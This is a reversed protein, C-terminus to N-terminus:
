AQTLCAQTLYHFTAAAERLTTIRSTSLPVDAEQEGVGKLQCANAVLSANRGMKVVLPTDEPRDGSDPSNKATTDSGGAAATEV